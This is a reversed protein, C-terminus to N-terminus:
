NAYGIITAPNGVMIAFAPVDKTVITNSGIIAGKGITLGKGVSCNYGIWVNDEIIIEKGKLDYDDYQRFGITRIHDFDKMREVHNKPHSINDLINVNHSVLVYSGIKIRKASWINSNAGIFTNDGIEIQGGFGFVILNGHIISNKGISIKSKDDQANTVNAAASFLVTADYAAVKSIQKHKVQLNANTVIRNVFSYFYYQIKKLLEKM